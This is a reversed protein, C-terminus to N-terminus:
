RKAYASSSAREVPRRSGSRLVSKIWSLNQTFEERSRDFVAFTTRLTRWALWGLLGSCMLGAGAAILLCAWLPLGTLSLLWALGLLAVPFTALLLVLGILGLALPRVARARADNLDVVLLRGQLEALTLVDHAFDGLNTRLATGAKQDGRGNVTAQGAM